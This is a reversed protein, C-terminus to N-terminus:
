FPARRVGRQTEERGATYNRFGARARNLSTASAPKKSRVHIMSLKMFACSSSTQGFGATHFEQCRVPEPTPFQPKILKRKDVAMTISSMRGSSCVPLSLSGQTLHALDLMNTFILM